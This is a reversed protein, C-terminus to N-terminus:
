LQYGFFLLAQLQYLDEPLGYYNYKMPRSINESILVKISIKIKLSVCRLALIMATAQVIIFLIGDRPNRRVRLFLSNM